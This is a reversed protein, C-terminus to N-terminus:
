PKAMMHQHLALGSGSKQAQERDIDYQLVQGRKEGNKERLM